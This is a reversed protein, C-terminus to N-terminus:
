YRGVIDTATTNTSNVRTFRGSLLLGAPANKYTVVTGASDVVAVDGSVGIYLERVVYGFDTSDSPTVAFHNKPPSTLGGALESFTDEASM